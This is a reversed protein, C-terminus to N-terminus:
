AMLQIFQRKIWQASVLGPRYHDSNECLNDTWGDCFNLIVHYDSGALVTPQGPPDNIVRKKYKKINGTKFGMRSNHGGCFRCGRGRGYGSYGRKDFKNTVRRTPRINVLDLISYYDSAYRYSYQFYFKKKYTSM